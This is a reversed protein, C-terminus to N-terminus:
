GIQMLWSYVLSRDNTSNPKHARAWLTPTEVSQTEERSTLLYLFFSQLTPVLVRTRGSMNRGCSNYAHVSKNTATVLCRMNHNLHSMIGPHEHIQVSPGWQTASNPSAASGKLPPTKSSWTQGQNPTPFSTKYGPGSGTRTIKQSGHECEPM